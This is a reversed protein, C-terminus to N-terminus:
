IRNIITYYTTLFNGQSLSVTFLQLTTSLAGVEDRVLYQITKTEQKGQVDLETFNHLQGSLLWLIKCTFLQLIISKHNHLEAWLRVIINNM